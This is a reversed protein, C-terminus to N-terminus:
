KPNLNGDWQKQLYAFLDRLEEDSLGNLLGPPMLSTKSAELSELDERRLRHHQGAMDRLTVTAPNQEHLFGAVIRDDKTTAVYNIYGERLELSPAVIAPLWFELNQREYGTLDPGLNQGEGFLQHCSACRAKFHVEGLNPDGQENQLVKRLRDMERQEEETSPSKQGPWHRAIKADIEPDGHQALLQVVDPAVNRAKIHAVDIKELFLRAWEVRSALVRHATSRVEHESPLSSGHRALITSAINESDYRSLSLLAVRKLASQQDLSLLRLLVPVVRADGTEGLAQALQVREVPDSQNSAVVQLAKSISEPEGQQLQLLLDNKGVTELYETMQKELAVPLTPKAVGEFALQIGTMLRKKADDDPAKELLRAVTLFNDEGGGMAYRRALREAIVERFISSKWTKPDAALGEIHERGSEAHQELAWWLLLPLHPDARDEDHNWLLERIVAVGVAPHLRRATTALAARVEVNEVLSFDSLDVGALERIKLPLEDELGDSSGTLRNSVVEQMLIIARERAIAEDDRNRKELYFPFMLEGRLHERKGGSGERLAALRERSLVESHRQTEFDAWLLELLARKRVVWNPHEFHASLEKPAAQTLDEPVPGLEKGAPKIRYIRGSGKHWDDVPRVHSLRSDYWDALYVCGDPGVGCFVPRFWRDDTQLLPEEDVTRFTSGDPHLESVWVINHLSNAAIIKGNWEPPFLGGEYICFAQAFRRDDGEHRMHQFYGFAYPNTLPGHKGWSKKGYSGQPYYMGRTKGNNTGSFVRGQSDIELSFTNGGGEAYIEFEDRDPHYRWVMQGEWDILDGSAPDTVSGTTTSGNVGYLWGDPGWKLSNMVAHTDEIGFGSLRVEPDGDPVADGDADPYFLLYPPNTVWIGGAGVVCSTAINLGTIVDRHSDYVGDGNTDEFVTIKDAGKVGHPPPEPVKDFQARLHNDYEVIRLGEPFQYQLYQTVWMRGRSDWSIHLPQGIVPESAVLEIEFGERLRFQSLAKEPPTPESGDALTGRGEYNKIIDAVQDTGAVETDDASGVLPVGFGLLLAALRACRCCDM